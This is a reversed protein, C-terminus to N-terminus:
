ILEDINIVSMCDTVIYYARSYESIDDFLCFDEEEDVWLEYDEKIRSFDGNTKLVDYDFYEFAESEDTYDWYSSIIMNEECDGHFNFGLERAQSANHVFFVARERYLSDLRNFSIPVPDFGFNSKIFECFKMNAEHETM